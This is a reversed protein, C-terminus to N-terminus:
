KKRRRGYKFIYPVQQEEMVKQLLLTLWARAFPNTEVLLKLSPSLRTSENLQSFDVVSKAHSPDFYAGAPIASNFNFQTPVSPSTNILSSPSRKQQRQEPEPEQQADEEKQQHQNKLLLLLKRSLSKSSSPQRYFELPEDPAHLSSAFLSSDDNHDDITSLENSEGILMQSIDGGLDYDISPIPHRRLLRLSSYLDASPHRRIFRLTSPSAPLGHVYTISLFLSILTVVFVALIDSLM